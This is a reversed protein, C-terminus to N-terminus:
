CPSAKPFLCELSVNVIGRKHGTFILVREVWENSAGEYFSCCTIEDDEADCVKQEVLLHGNLTLVRVYAGSCLLIHGTLNNVKACQITDSGNNAHQLVRVCDFRNLDWLLVQGDVSASVLTSFARSAALVSVPTRHGFLYTRSQIDVTDSAVAITWVGITSDAGGTILTKSDAFLATSIQGIHLNEYLGLM